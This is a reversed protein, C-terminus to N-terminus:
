ALLSGRRKIRCFCVVGLGLGLLAFASPEPVAVIEISTIGSGARTGSKPVASNLINLSSGTLGTFLLTNAVPNVAAPNSNIDYSLNPNTNATNTTYSLTESGITVSGWRDNANSGV